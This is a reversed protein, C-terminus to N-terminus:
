EWDIINLNNFRESWSIVKKKYLEKNNDVIKIPRITKTFIDEVGYPAYIFLEGNKKTLGVASVTALWRSIADETSKYPKVKTNCNAEKWIHMRAENSVDIDYNIGLNDVYNQIKRYYMLDVDVSLNKDNYYVVDIDKIGTNLDIKDLYNWITQFIIGSVIYYNNLGLSDVYDLVYMLEKNKRLISIMENEM